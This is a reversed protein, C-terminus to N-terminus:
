GASYAVATDNVVIIALAHIGDQHIGGYTFRSSGSAAMEWKGDTGVVIAKGINGEDNVAEDYQDTAYREGPYMPILKVLSNAPVTVFDTDYDDIDTLSAKLGSVEREREVMYINDASAAAPFIAQGAALDIQAGMGTTMQNKAVFTTPINKAVNVQLERVM